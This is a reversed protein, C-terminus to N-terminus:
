SKYKNESIKGSMVSLIWNLNGSVSTFVAPYDNPNECQSSGFSDIGIQMPPNDATVLPSGSDGPCPGADNNGIACIQTSKNIYINEWEENCQM